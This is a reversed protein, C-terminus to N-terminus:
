GRLSRTLVPQGDPAVIRMRMWAAITQLCTADRDSWWTDLLCVAEVNMLSQIKTRLLADDMYYSVEHGADALRNSVPAKDHLSGPGVILIKM